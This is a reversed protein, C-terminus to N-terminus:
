EDAPPKPMLDSLISAIKAIADEDISLFHVEAGPIVGQALVEPQEVGADIFVIEKLYTLSESAVANPQINQLSM